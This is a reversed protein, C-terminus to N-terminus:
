SWCPWRCPRVKCDGIVYVVDRPRFKVVGRFLIWDGRKLEVSAPPGNGRKGGGGGGEAPPWWARDAEGRVIRQRPPAAAAGRAARGGAGACGGADAAAAHGVRAAGACRVARPARM